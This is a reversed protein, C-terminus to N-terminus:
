RGSTKQGSDQDSPESESNTSSTSQPDARPPLEDNRQAELFAEAAKEMHEKLTTGKMSMCLGDILVDWVRHVPIEDLVDEPIQYPKGDKKVGHTLYLDLMSMSAVGDLIAQVVDKFFSAGRESEIRKLDSNRFRIVIGEGAEKFDIEGREKIATEGM